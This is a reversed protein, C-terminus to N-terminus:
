LASSSAFVLDKIGLTKMAELAVYTTMFTDRLDVQADVIGAPIDSNAAMHWIVSVPNKEHYENLIKVAAQLNSIDANVFYLRERGPINEIFENRGRCLNDLVLVSEGKELFHRTIKSGIFGAGGIIAISM